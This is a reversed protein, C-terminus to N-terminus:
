PSSLTFRVQISYNGPTDLNWALNTQFYLPVVTGNTAAGTALSVGSNALLATYPGGLVHAWLLEGVPKNARVPEATTAVGSWITVPSDIKLTW